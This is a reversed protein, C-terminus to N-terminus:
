KKRKRKKKSPADVTKIKLPGKEVERKVIAKVEEARKELKDAEDPFLTNILEDLTKRLNDSGQGGQMVQGVHM